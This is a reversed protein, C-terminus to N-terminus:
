VMCYKLSTNEKLFVLALIFIFRRLHGIISHGKWAFALDTEKMEKLVLGELETLSLSIHTSYGTNNCIPNHTIKEDREGLSNRWLESMM